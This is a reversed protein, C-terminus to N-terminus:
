SKAKLLPVEMCCDFSQFQVSGSTWKVYLNLRKKSIIGLQNTSATGLQAIALNNEPAITLSIACEGPWPILYIHLERQSAKKSVELCKGM